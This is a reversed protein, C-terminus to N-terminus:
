TLLDALLGLSTWLVSAPGAGPKPPELKMRAALARVPDDQWHRSVDLPPAYTPVKPGQVLSAPLHHMAIERLAAKDATPAPAAAVVADHLFPSVLELGAERTLAGIIPLYNRPDSGAFVQDAGDGTLLVEFGLEHLRKALLWRSVPHLNFLPCEAARIVDPFAEIMQEASTEIVQVEHVGLGRATAETREHECYGELGSAITFVPVDDRGAKCLLALVLASDLGGSLAVAMRRNENAIAKMAIELARRLSCGPAATTADDAIIEYRGVAERLAEGAALLRVEAFCTRRGDPKRDLYNRVGDVDWDRHPLMRLVDRVRRGHARGDASVYHPRIGLPHHRAFLSM